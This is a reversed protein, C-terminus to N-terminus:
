VAPVFLVTWHLSVSFLIVVFELCCFLLHSMLGDSCNLLQFSMADHLCCSLLQSM